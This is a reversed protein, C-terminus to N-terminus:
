IFLFIKLFSISIFVNESLLFSFSNTARPMPFLTIGGKGAWWLLDYHCGMVVVFFNVLLFCIYKINTKHSM